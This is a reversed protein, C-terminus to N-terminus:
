AMAEALTVSEDLYTGFADLADAGTQALADAAYPFKELLDRMEEDNAASHKADLAVHHVLFRLDNLIDESLVTKMRELLPPAVEVSLREIENEIAVQRFPTESKIVNEHLAIYQEQGMTKDRGLFTEPSVINAPFTSNWRNVLNKTDKIYYVHHNAEEKSHKKLFNGLDTYGLAVCRDGARSIWGEVPETMEVGRSCMQILFALLLKPDAESEMITKYWKRERFRQRSTALTEEYQQYLDTAVM